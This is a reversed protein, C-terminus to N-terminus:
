VEHATAGLYLKNYVAILDQHENPYELAKKDHIFVVKNSVSQVSELNHSSMMIIKGSESWHKVLAHFKQTNTPDLGNLPEDFLLVQAGSMYYLSLLLQQKMGLSLKRVKKNLFSQLNFLQSAETFSVQSHWLDHIMILHQKVSLDAYLNDVSELYFIRQLFAERNTRNSIDKGVLCQGSESPIIRMIARLFTTKGTGNPAVLGIVDGPDFNLYFQQLIQENKYKVSVNEVKFM